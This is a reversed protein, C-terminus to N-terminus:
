DYMEWPILHITTENKTREKLIRYNGDGGQEDINFRDVPIKIILTYEDTFTSDLGEPDIYLEFVVENTEKDLYGSTLSTYDPYSEFTQFHLVIIGSEFINYGLTLGSPTEKFDWFRKNM